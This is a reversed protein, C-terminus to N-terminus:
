GPCGLGARASNAATVSPSSPYRVAVESLTLCAEDTQGLTGLATGLGILAEPARASDPAGSFVELYSRAADAPQGAKALAEGRLFHAEVTLPGTPYTTVFRGFAEAAGAADGGSLLAQARDFDGQEGVALQTDDGTGTQTPLTGIAQGGAAAADETGGLPGPNPLSGLDCDTTLECLQFRLDEIRASGDRSVSEIRFSMRETAQTLRQLEAEIANVRDLVTSGGTAIQPAGTTNLERILKQMEVQLVSLQQRIDGLTEEQQAAVPTALALVLAAVPALARRM